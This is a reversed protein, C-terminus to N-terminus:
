RLPLPRAQKTESPHRQTPIVQLRFPVAVNPPLPVADRPLSPRPTKTPPTAQQAFAQSGPIVALGVLLLSRLLPFTKM